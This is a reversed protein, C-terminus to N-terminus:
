KASKAVKARSRNGGPLRPTAPEPAAIMVKDIAATWKGNSGGVARGGQIQLYSFGGSANPGLIGTELPRGNRSLKFTGSGLNLLLSFADVGGDVTWSTKAGPANTVNKAFQSQINGGYTKSGSGAVYTYQPMIFLGKPGGVRFTVDTEATQSAEKGSPPTYATIESEWAIRLKGSTIATPIQFTIAPEYAGADNVSKLQLPKTLGGASSVVTATYGGSTTVGTPSKDTTGVVYASTSPTTGVTDNNFNVDFLVGARASGAVLAAAALLAVSVGAQFRSDIKRKM